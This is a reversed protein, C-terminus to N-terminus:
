VIATRRGSDPSVPKEHSIAMDCMIADDAVMDGHRVLRRQRPMALNTIEDINAAEGRHMLEHPDAVMGKKATAGAQSGIKDREAHGDAVPRGQTAEVNDAHLARAHEKGLNAL